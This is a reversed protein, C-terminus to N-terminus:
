PNLKLFLQKLIKPCFPGYIFSFFFELCNSWNQVHVSQTKHFELFNNWNKCLFFLKCPGCCPRGAHLLTRCRVRLAQSTSHTAICNKTVHCSPCAQRRSVVCWPSRYLADTRWSVACSAAVRTAAREVHRKTRVLCPSTNRYLSQITVPPLPPPPQSVTNHQSM